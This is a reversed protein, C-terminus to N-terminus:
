RQGSENYSADSSSNSVTEAGSPEDYDDLQSESDTSMISVKKEIILKRILVVSSEFSFSLNAM